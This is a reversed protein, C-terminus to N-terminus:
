QKKGGSKTLYEPCRTLDLWEGIKEDTGEPELPMIGASPTFTLESFYLRNKVLMLDVRVFIFDKSLNEAIELMESLNEPIAPLVKLQKHDRRCFEAKKGDTYVFSCRMKHFDGDPVEAVYYFKPIGHFCFFKYDIIEEGIFSECIIKRPISHYHPEGTVLSFDEKMWKRLKKEATKEDFSSKDNCIINYASGHNCKLVFQDPLAKWDIERVSDWVGCLPVLLDEYGKQRIYDRVRYKDACQIITPNKPYYFLKLWCLKENYTIPSDLNLKKHMYARYMIKTSLIIHMKSVIKRAVRLSEKKINM